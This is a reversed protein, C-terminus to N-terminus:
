DISHSVVAYGEAVMLEVISDFVKGPPKGLDVARHDAGIVIKGREFESFVYPGIGYHFLCPHLNADYTEKGVDGPYHLTRNGVTDGLHIGHGLGVFPRFEEPLLLVTVQHDGQGVDAPDSGVAKRIGFEHSGGPAEVEHDAAM